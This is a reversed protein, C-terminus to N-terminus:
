RRHRLYGFVSTIGIAALALYNFKIGYIKDKNVKRIENVSVWTIAPLVAYLGCIDRKSKNNDLFFLSIFPLQHFILDFIMVYKYELEYIKKGIKLKIRKPYVYTLYLGILSTNLVSLRLPGVVNTLNLKYATFWTFNWLTWYRIM